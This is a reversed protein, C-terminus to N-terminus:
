LGPAKGDKMPTDQTANSSNFFSILEHIKKKEQAASQHPQPSEAGEATPMEISQSALANTIVPASEEQYPKLFEPSAKNIRDFFLPMIKNYFVAGDIDFNYATLKIIFNDKVVACQPRMGDETEFGALKSIRNPRTDFKATEDFNDKLFTIFKKVNEESIGRMRFVMRTADHDRGFRSEQPLETIGAMELLVNELINCKTMDIQREKLFADIERSLNLIALASEAYNYTLFTQIEQILDYLQSPDELCIQSEDREKLFEILEEHTEQVYPVYKRDRSVSGVIGILQFLLKSLQRSQISWAMDTQNLNDRIKLSYKEINELSKKELRPRSYIQYPKLEEISEKALQEVHSIFAPLIVDFMLKEDIPLSQGTKYKEPPIQFFRLLKDLDSLHIAATKLELKEKRWTDFSFRDFADESNKEVGASQLLYDIFITSETSISYKVLFRSLEKELRSYM